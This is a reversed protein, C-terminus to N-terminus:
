PTSMEKSINNGRGLIDKRSGIELQRCVGIFVDLGLQLWAHHSMDTIGASQSASAPPDGSTPFELVAQGVHHFGIEALFVPMLWTHHCMGTIGAVRSTSVSNNFGPPLPQLLGLNRWQVGAQTVSFSEMEFFFSGVSIQFTLRIFGIFGTIGARQSASAPSDRSVLLEFYGPRCSLVENKPPQPLIDSSSLFKISCHATITGSCELRSFVTLGQRPLGLVKPPRPPCIVLDPSRSWGPTEVSELRTVFRSEMQMWWWWSTVEGQMKWKPQSQPKAFVKGQQICGERGLAKIKRKALPSWLRQSSGRRNGAATKTLERAGDAPRCLLLRKM